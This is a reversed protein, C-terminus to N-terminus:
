LERAARGPSGRIGASLRAAAARQDGRLHISRKRGRRAALDSREGVGRLAARQGRGRRDGRAPAGACRSVRGDAPLLLHLPDRQAAGRLLLDPTGLGRRLIRRSIAEPSGAFLAGRGAVVPPVLVLLVLAAIGGWVLRPEPRTLIPQAAAALALGCLGALAPLAQIFYHPRFHLGVAAGALSAVWWGALLRSARRGPLGRRPPRLAAWLALLWLVAFGPGQQRLAFGLSALGQGLSKRQSYELNHLFVADVFPKLAGAAAFAAVVPLSLVLAGLMLWGYRRLVLRAREGSGAAPVDVAAVLALFLANTGAVQKFWCAAAALAGCALWWLARDEAVAREVCLVSAVMPLLMFVETNAATAGVSADTSVVAFVLVGLAAAVEGALRRLLVFLLAATGASWLHAFVHIAESSRGLLSFAGLYALFVGPPKQDFADRYPVEGELMRWAVYAYEGEDREL